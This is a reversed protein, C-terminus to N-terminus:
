GKGLLGKLWRVGGPGLTREVSNRAYSRAQGARSALSRGLAVEVLTAGGTGAAAALAAAGEEEFSAYGVGLAEAFRRLDPNLVRTAHDRGFERRQQDAILALEDDRFVITGIDVGERRAVLLEMGSIQLGGDGILATVAREPAALKAGIAAPLGFGMSQLDSPVMLGGPTTVRFHRRTLMQHRGSDTVLIGDAPLARRLRSFLERVSGGPIGAVKPDDGEPGSSAFRGRWEVLEGEEWGRGTSDDLRELAGTVFARVDCRLATAAGYPAPAGGERSDVYLLREAPIRLQFGHAGNHTFACGLAVVLDARRLLENLVGPPDGPRDTVLALPHDEPIVGRASTTTVVPARLAAALEVVAGPADLGGQGVFLLPRRSEALLGLAPGLEEEPPVPARMPPPGSLFAEVGGEPREISAALVEPPLHVLVPGPEGREAEAVAEALVPGIRGGGEVAFIRKVVPEAIERQRLAQLMARGDPSPAPGVALWLLPVSDLRAEAVGPLAFAFGPGPITALISARRTVRAYGNAMFSAALESTASVHRVGARRLGEVLAVNQGGPVGFVIRAGAERLIEGLVFAGQM